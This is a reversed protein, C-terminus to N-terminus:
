RAQALWSARRRDHWDQHSRAKWAVPTGDRPGSARRLSHASAGGRWEIRKPYVM